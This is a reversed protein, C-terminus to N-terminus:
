DDSDGEFNDELDKQVVSNAVPKRFVLSARCGIESILKQAVPASALFAEHPKTTFHVIYGGFSDSEIPSALWYKGLKLQYYNPEEKNM